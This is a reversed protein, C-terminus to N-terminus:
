RRVRYSRDRFMADRRERLRDQRQENMARTRAAREVARDRSREALDYSRAQARGQRVIADWRTRERQQEARERTMERRLERSRELEYDRGVSRQAGARSPAVTLVATALSLLVAHRMRM